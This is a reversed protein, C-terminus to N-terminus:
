PGSRITIDGLARGDTGSRPQATLIYGRAQLTLLVPNIDEARAAGLTVSLLGDGRWSLTDITVTPQTEMASVLAALPASLRAPGGGLAALRADLAAVAGEVPPDPDLAAAAASQAADDLRATDAVTVAIRAVAILISAVLIALALIAARRLLARDLWSAPKRAFRGSRLEAPAGDCAAIMASEIHDPPADVIRGESGVIHDVLVPDALFATDRGRIITESAVAGRVLTGPSGGPATDLPVLLAAPVVSHLEIGHGRAWDLWGQMAADAVVLIDRSSDGDDEAGSIAVHLATAPAISQEAALLRAAAEAQRPALGPFAARHLITDAAPAIGVVHTEPALGGGASPHLWDLTDGRQTVQGDLIRWWLTASVAGSAVSSGGPPLAIMLADRSSLGQDRDEDCDADDRADAKRGGDAGCLAHRVM